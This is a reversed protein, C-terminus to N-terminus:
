TEHKTNKLLVFSTDLEKEVIWVEDDGDYFLDGIYSDKKAELAEKAEKAKYLSTYIGCLTTDLCKSGYVLYVKRKDM